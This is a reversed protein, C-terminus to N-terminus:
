TRGRSIQIGNHEGISLRWCSMVILRDLEVLVDIMRMPPSSKVRSRKAVTELNIQKDKLRDLKLM